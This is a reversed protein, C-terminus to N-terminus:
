RRRRRSLWVVGFLGAAAMPIAGCCPLFPALLGGAETEHFKWVRPLQEDLAGIEKLGFVEERGVAVWLKGTEGSPVYAVVYYTGTQAAASELVGWIWSDTGTFEEHFHEAQESVDLSIGGLGQPIEFPLSIEPLGPGLLALAPRFDALRDIAPVGLQAYIGQGAELQFTLWLRPTEPTVEHYVVHSVAADDIALANEPSTGSGPGSFIPIHARAPAACIALALGTLLAYRRALM